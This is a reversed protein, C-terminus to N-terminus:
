MFVVHIKLSSNLKPSHFKLPLVTLSPLALLHIFIRLLLFIEFYWGGLETLLWYSGFLKSITEDPKM